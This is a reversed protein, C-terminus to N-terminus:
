PEFGMEALKDDIVKVKVQLLKVVIPRIPDLITDDQYTGQITVGLANTNEIREIKSLLENREDFLKLAKPIDSIKVAKREM